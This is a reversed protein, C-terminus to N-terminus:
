RQAADRLGVRVRTVAADIDRGVLEAEFHLVRYGMRGLLRDRRVDAARRGAHYAGDIEVVLRAKPAVFDGIFRGGIPVQRHFATGLQGGRLRQWLLQESRTPMARMQAAHAALRMQAASDLPAFLRHHM